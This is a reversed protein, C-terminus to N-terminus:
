LWLAQRCNKPVSTGKCAQAEKRSTKSRTSAIPRGEAEQGQFVAQRAADVLVVVQKQVVVELDDPSTVRLILCLRIPWSFALQRRNLPNVGMGLIKRCHRSNRSACGPQSRMAQWSVALQTARILSFWSGASAAMAPTFRGPEVAHHHQLFADLHIGAVEGAEHHEGFM